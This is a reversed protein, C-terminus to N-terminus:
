NQHRSLREGHLYCHSGYISVACHSACHASNRHCPTESIYDNAAAKMTSLALPTVTHKIGGSALVAWWQMKVIVTITTIAMIIIMIAPTINKQETAKNTPQAVPRSPPHHTQQRQQRRHRRRNDTAAFIAATASM